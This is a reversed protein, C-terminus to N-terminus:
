SITFMFGLSVLSEYKKDNRFYYPLPDRSIYCRIKFEPNIIPTPVVCSTALDNNLKRLPGIM